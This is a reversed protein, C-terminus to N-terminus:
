LKLYTKDNYRDELKTKANNNMTMKWQESDNYFYLTTVIDYNTQYLSKRFSFYELSDLVNHVYDCTTTQESSQLAVLLFIWVDLQTRSPFIKSDFYFVPINEGFNVAFCLVAPWSLGINQCIFRHKTFFKLLCCSQFLRFTIVQSFKSIFKSFIVVTVRFSWM